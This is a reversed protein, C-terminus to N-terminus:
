GIIITFWPLVIQQFELWNIIIIGWPMVNTPAMLSYHYM